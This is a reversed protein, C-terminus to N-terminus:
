PTSLTELQYNAYIGRKNEVFTIVCSAVVELSVGTVIRNGMAALSFQAQAATANSFAGSLRESDKFFLTAIRFEPAWVEGIRTRDCQARYFSAPRRM